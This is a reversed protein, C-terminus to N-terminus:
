EEGTVFSQITLKGTVCVDDGNKNTWCAFGEELEPKKPMVWLTHSGDLNERFVKWHVIKEPKDDDCGAIFGFSFLLVLLIIVLKKMEGEKEPIRDPDM